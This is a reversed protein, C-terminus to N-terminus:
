EGLLEFLKTENIISINLAQAKKFKSSTSVMDNTILFSTEKSVGSQVTAGHSKVIKELESRKMSLTGTICVRKGSLASTKQVEPNTEFHFDYTMLKKILSHKAQLSNIFDLSSKEAFSEIGMLDERSLNLIKEMSDFGAQVIKECKNYAGGSIGLASLFTVLDTRKAQEINKILKDALKEKVKNLSLLQEKKIEFLSAIDIVFGAKIMEQLRKSSLDEIGIKKIFNLIEDLVKDPCNENKCLLRIDEEAIVSDCSPCKGPITFPNPSSDEVALFKPIVEGSRVIRIKDGAKLQHQKVLGYNHLTVRSVMAGSVEVAEVNAVPTLIGNRSVQWSLSKITTIKEEGQFKFAMKYRPHHATEGLEEHTAVDRLTFVLGDILYNGESMFRQAQDLAVKIDSEGTHIKIDPTEFGMNKLITFKQDESKFVLDNSFIEFAQFSLFSALEIQDKRGLLGAVINRQSNPRELGLKQMQESLNFFEKERCFVEGRVEIDIAEPLNKPVQDLFLIKNTINEGFKGDGRTKAVQLIGQRYVLSCSSGDIKFTSVLQHADMWRLLEPLKYTKNLSLMKREHPIKEGSLYQSGVMQLLPNEADLERLEQELADYEFDSIEPRGQYYLDKHKIISRELEKIRKL